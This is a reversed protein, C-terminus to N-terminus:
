TWVSPGMASCMTVPKGEFVSKAESNPTQLWALFKAATGPPAGPGYTSTMIV